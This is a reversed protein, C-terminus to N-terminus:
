VGVSRDTLASVVVVWKLEAVGTDGFLYEEGSDTVPASVLLELM